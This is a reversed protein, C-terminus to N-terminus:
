ESCNRVWGFDPTQDRLQHLAEPMTRNWLVAFVARGTTAVAAGAEVEFDNVVRAVM